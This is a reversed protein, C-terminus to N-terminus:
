ALIYKVPNVVVPAEVVGYGLAIVASYFSKIRPLYMMIM